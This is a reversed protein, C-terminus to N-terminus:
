ANSLFRFSAIMDYSFTKPSVVFLWVQSLWNGLQYKFHTGGLHLDSDYSSSVVQETEPFKVKVGSAQGHKKM